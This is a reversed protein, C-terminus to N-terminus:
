RAATRGRYAGLADTLVAALDGRRGEAPDKGM